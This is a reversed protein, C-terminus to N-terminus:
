EISQESRMNVLKGISMPSSGTFLMWQNALQEWRFPRSIKSLSNLLNPTASLSLNSSTAFINFSSQNQSALSKSQDEQHANLLEKILKSKQVKFEDQWEKLALLKWLQTNILGAQLLQQKIWFFYPNNETLKKM